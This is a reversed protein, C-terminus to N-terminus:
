ARSGNSPENSSRGQPMAVATSSQGHGPATAGDAADDGAFAPHRELAALPLVDFDPKEWTPEVPGAQGPM